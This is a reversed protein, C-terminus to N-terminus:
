HDSGRRNEKLIKGLFKWYALHFSYSDTDRIVEHFNISNDCSQPHFIAADYLGPREPHFQVGKVNPYIEHEIAEIIKEDVSTASVLWGKGPVQIAQHHSSLVMPGTKKRYGIEKRLFSGKITKVQHFHFSTPVECTSQVQHSYNRHKQDVPLALIEEASWIEYVETPIDQILTGGTAVNMTQMGLCIGSVLYQKDGELYPSWLPNQDGGLLHFVFSVEMFHRYPDTVSTLLHASENYVGPPIDPGGMFFAGRSRGFLSRFEETCNNSGFLVEQELEGKVAQFSFRSDPDELLATRAKEYDYAERSHYVGLIHYGELNLLKAKELNRIVEINSATPHFLLLTDQGTLLSTGFLLLLAIAMLNRM